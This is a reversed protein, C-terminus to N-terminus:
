KPGVLEHPPLVIEWTLPRWLHLVNVARGGLAKGSIHQDPPVHLQIATETPLFFVRKVQEMEDWTPAREGRSVSVHDWGEARAAIINLPNGDDCSKIHFMGADNDGLWGFVRLSNPVDRLHDLEKLNRM